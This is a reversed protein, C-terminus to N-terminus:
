ARAQQPQYVKDRLLAWQLRAAALHRAKVHGFGRIQEPVRAVEDVADIPLAFENGDLKFGSEGNSIQSRYYRYDVETVPSTNSPAVLNYRNCNPDPGGRYAAIPKSSWLTYDYYGARRLERTLIDMAARLDQQVQTELMLRRNEVLQSSVMLAAAAVILLGIAVGVMMEVLSLGRQGRRSRPYPALM